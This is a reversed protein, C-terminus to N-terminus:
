PALVTEIRARFPSRPYRGLFVRARARALEGEGSAALAEIALAEREHYLVGSTFESHGAQALRYAGGPDRALLGRIRALQAIERRLADGGDAASSRQVRPNPAPTSAATPPPRGDPPAPAAPALPPPLALPARPPVSPVNRSPQGGAVWWVGLALAAAGVVWLAHRMTGSRAARLWRSPPRPQAMARQLTTWGAAQDYGETARQFHQLDSALEPPLARDDLMRVPPKM